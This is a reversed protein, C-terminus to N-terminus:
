CVFYYFHCFSGGWRWFSSSFFSFFSCGKSFMLCGGSYCCVSSPCIGQTAELDLCTLLPSLKHTLLCYWNPQDNIHANINNTLLVNKNHLTVYDFSNIHKGGRKKLLCWCGAPHIPCMLLHIYHWSPTESQSARRSSQSSGGWCVAEGWRQGCCRQNCSRWSCRRWWSCPSLWHSWQMETFNITGDKTSKVSLSGTNICTHLLHKNFCLRKTIIM